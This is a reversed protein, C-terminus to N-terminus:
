FLRLPRDPDPQTQGMRLLEGVTFRGELLASRCAEDLPGIRTEGGLSEVAFVERFPIDESDLMDASHTTVFTQIHDRADLLADALGGLAGAHLASEPEEIGVLSAGDADDGAQQFLAVLVGLGRLTGDSMSEALFRRTRDSGPMAQAFEVTLKPGFARPEVRAIQPVLAALYDDIIQKREPATSKLRRLVSAINSGDRRLLRGDDSTQLERIREVSPNYFTM